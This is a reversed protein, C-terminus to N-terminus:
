QSAVQQEMGPDDFTGETSDDASAAAEMLRSAQAENGALQHARALDKRWSRNWPCRAYGREMLAIGDHLHGKHVYILGVMFNASAHDPIHHLVQKFRYEAQELENLKYLKVGDDFLGPQPLAIMDDIPKWRIKANTGQILPSLHQQYRQWRAKSSKYVPQRVQWVSATKVPRQLEHSDLVRPEWAVGVYDLMARAVADPDDVLAEYQVEFIQGPFLDRWHQMLLNHDALQEGIDTLDYAFGMGGHKAQYDTFFNSIAIDRPDRRVSIIKAHPFLFKILGINEFNHPLKDVVHRAQPAMERLETLVKEAIGAVVEPSLDDVCDPYRRGSGTFREWRELGKIVRPIIGLEGAGHIQSHGALVQEVLTTGSRPMGLVFVPLTSDVGVGPRNEYLSRSFAHRIRACRDRHAQGDYHLFRRSAANAECVLAFAHAYDKRAEWASALQFLLGTRVTGEASPMRALQELRQLTTEDEPFRRANILAANGKAPDIAAIREFLTVAEDIQGLQLKLHGLGQLAPLMRPNDVLLAEFDIQAQVYDQKQSAVAAMALRALARAHQLPETPHAGLELTEALAAAKEAAQQAAQDATHLLVGSLRAWLAVCEVPHDEALRIAKRLLTAAEGNRGQMQALEVMPDILMRNNPYHQLGARLSEEAQAHRNHKALALAHQALLASWDDEARAARAAELWAEAHADDGTAAWVDLQLANLQYEAQRQRSEPWDAHQRLTEVAQHLAQQAAPADAQQLCLRALNWLVPIRPQRAASTAYLARAEDFRGQRMRCGGLRAQLLANQGHGPLLSELLRAAEDVRDLALWVGALDLQAAEDLPADADHARSAWELATAPEGLLVHAFALLVQVAPEALDAHLCAEKLAAPNQQEVMARLLDLLSKTM